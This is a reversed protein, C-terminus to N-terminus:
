WCRLRDIKEKAKVRLVVMKTRTRIKASVQLYPLFARVLHTYTNPFLNTLFAFLKGAVSIVTKAIWQIRNYKSVAEM